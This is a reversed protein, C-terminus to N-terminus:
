RAHTWQLRRTNSCYQRVIIKILKDAYVPQTAYGAKKLGKKNALDKLILNSFLM